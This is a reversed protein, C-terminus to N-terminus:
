DWEINQHQEKLYILTAQRDEILSQIVDFLRKGKNQNQDALSYEASFGGSWSDTKIGDVLDPYKDDLYHCIFAEWNYGNMVTSKCIKEMADSVALVKDDDTNLYINIAEAVESVDLVVYDKETNREYFNIKHFHFWDWMTERSDWEFPALKFAKRVLVYLMDTNMQVNGDALKIYEEASISRIFYMMEGCGDYWDLNFRYAEGKNVTIETQRIEDLPTQYDDQRYVCEWRWGKKALVDLYNVTQLPSLRSKELIDLSFDPSTSKYDFIETLYHDNPRFFVLRAFAHFGNGIYFRFVDGPKLKKYTVKM